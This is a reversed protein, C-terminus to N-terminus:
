RLGAASARAAEVRARGPSEDLRSDEVGSPADGVPGDFVATRNGVGPLGGDARVDEATVHTLFDTRPISWEARKGRECRCGGRRWGRAGFDERHALAGPSPPEPLGGDVARCPPPELSIRGGRRAGHPVLGAPRAELVGRADFLPAEGLGGAPREALQPSTESGTLDAKTEFPRRWPGEFPGRRRRM